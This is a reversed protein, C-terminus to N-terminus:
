GVSLFRMLPDRVVEFYRQYGSAGPHAGDGERVGDLWARDKALDGMVPLYAVHRLDACTDIIGIASPSTNPKARRGAIDTGLPLILPCYSTPRGPAAFV